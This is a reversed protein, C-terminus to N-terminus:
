NSRVSALYKIVLDKSNKLNAVPEWTMSEETNDYGKWKVLYELRGRRRRSDLVEEVEYEEEGDIEVPPPPDNTRNPINSEHVKELLSM